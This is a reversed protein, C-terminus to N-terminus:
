DKQFWNQRSYSIAVWELQQRSFGMSLLPQHAVTWPTRFLRVCSLLQICLSTYNGTILHVKTSHVPWHAKVHACNKWWRCLWSMFDWAETPPETSLFADVVAPSMLEMEPRSPGWMGQLLYVWTSSHSLRHSIYEVLFAVVTAFLCLLWFYFLKTKLLFFIFNRWCVKRWNLETWDSLRTWSKAVGHVAASWAERDM